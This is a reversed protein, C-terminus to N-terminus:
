SLVLLELIICIKEILKGSDLVGRFNIYNTIFFDGVM